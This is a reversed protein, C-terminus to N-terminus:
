QFVCESYIVSQLYIFPMIKAGFMAVRKRYPIEAARGQLIPSQTDTFIVLLFGGAGFFQPFFMIM